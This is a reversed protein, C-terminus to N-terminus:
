PWTLVLTAGLQSGPASLKLELSAVLCAKSGLSWTLMKARDGFVYFLLAAAQVGAGIFLLDRFRANAATQPVALGVALPGLVPVLLPLTLDGNMLDWGRTGPALPEFLVGSTIRLSLAGYEVGAELAEAETQATTLATVLTLVLLM